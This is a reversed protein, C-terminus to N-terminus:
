AGPKAAAHEPRGRPRPRDWAWHCRGGDLMATHKGRHGAELECRHTGGGPTRSDCPGEFRYGHSRRRAVLEDRRQELEAVTDFIETRTRPKQGLRGWLIFLHVEGFLTPREELYYVRAWGREPNILTARM